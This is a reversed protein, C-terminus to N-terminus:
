RQKDYFDESRSRRRDGEFSEDLFEDQHNKDLRYSLGAAIQWRSPTDKFNILGSVDIQLDDTLLFAAGARAIDDAYLDSILGQYEAFAALKPNFAHTLTAIGSYTPYTETFKDAIFNLVFVWAGWNNQTSLVVRPTFNPEEEYLFPNTEDFNFNAGAYLAIAPILKRWKFRQNAKWSYLNPKDEDANKYPDYFLYKAGITNTKFNRFTYVEDRGGVGTTTENNEFSGIVSVELGETLLGYRLAYNIGWIDTDSKYLAHNDNGSYAGTELQLVGWGVAFAGQSNGPRNSNITETYQASAFSSGLFFCFLFAKMLRM